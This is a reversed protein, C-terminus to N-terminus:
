FLCCSLRSLIRFHTFQTIFAEDLSTTKHDDLHSTVLTAPIECGIYKFAVGHNLVAPVNRFNGGNHRM